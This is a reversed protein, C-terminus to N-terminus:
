KKPWVKTEGPKTKPTPFATIVIGSDQIEVVVKLFDGKYPRKRYYNFRNKHNKDTFIGGNPHEIALKVQGERGKMFPHRELVHKEWIHETCVIHRGLPDTAEFLNAM